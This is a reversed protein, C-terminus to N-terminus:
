RQERQQHHLSCVLYNINLKSEEVIQKALKQLHELSQHDISGAANSGGDDQIQLRVALDFDHQAPAIDPSSLIQPQHQDLSATSTTVAPSRFSAPLPPPM